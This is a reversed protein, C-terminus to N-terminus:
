VTEYLEYKIKVSSGSPVVNSRNDTIAITSPATFSAYYYRGSTGAVVEFTQMNSGAFTTRTFSYEADISTQFEASKAYAFGDPYTVSDPTASIVKIYQSATLNSFVTALDTYAEQFLEKFSKVGDALKSIEYTGLLKMVGSIVSVSAKVEEIAGTLTQAVTTLPTSGIMSTIGSINTTHDSVVAALGTSPTNIQTNLTNATNAAATATSSASGAVSSANSAADAANKIATDITSFAGNVDTLWAPKDTGIFQPLNYNPTFNTSGM